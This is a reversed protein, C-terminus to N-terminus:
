LKARTILKVLAVLIEPLAKLIRNTEISSLAKATDKQPKADTKYLLFEKSSSRNHFLKTKQHTM